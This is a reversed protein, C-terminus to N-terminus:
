WYQDCYLTAYPCGINAPVPSAKRARHAEVGSLSRGLAKSRNAVVLGEWLSVLADRGRGLTPFCGKRLIGLGDEYDGEGGAIIVEAIQPAIWCVNKRGVLLGLVQGLDCKSNQTLDM